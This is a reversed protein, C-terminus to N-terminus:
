SPYGPQEKPEGIMVASTLLMGNPVQLTRGDDMEMRTVTLTIDHVRGSSGDIELRDGIHIPDGFVILIGAVLNGLLHQAAFGVILGLLATSALLSTALRKFPGLQVLVFLAIVLVVGFVLLRRTLRLRTELRPDLPRYKKPEM